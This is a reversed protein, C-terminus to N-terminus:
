YRANSDADAPIHLHALARRSAGVVAHTHTQVAGSVSLRMETREYVRPLVGRITRAHKELRTENSSDCTRSVRKAGFCAARCCSTQHCLFAYKDFCTAPPIFVLVPYLCQQYVLATVRRCAAGAHAPRKVLVKTDSAGRSLPATLRVTLVRSLPSLVCILLFLLPPYGWAFGDSATVFPRKADCVVASATSTRQRV